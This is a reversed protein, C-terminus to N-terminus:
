AEMDDALKVPELYEIIGCVEGPLIVARQQISGFRIPDKSARAYPLRKLVQAWADAWRGSPEFIADLRPHHNAIAIEGAPGQDMYVKIGIAELAAEAQPAYIIRGLGEAARSRAVASILEGVSAHKTYGHHDEYTTPGALLHHLCLIEEADGADPLMARLELEKIWARAAALEPPRDNLAVWAPALLNAFQDCDRAGFAELDLATLLTEVAAEVEAWRAVLRGLYRRGIEVDFSAIAARRDEQMVRSQPLLELVTIRGVDQPLLGSVLISSFFFSSRVRYKQASGEITGRLIAGQGDSSSIRSLAVVKPVRSRVTSPEFEDFLVPLASNELAQRVGPEGTDGAVTLAWRDLIAQALGDLMSKGSESPGATWIHPRWRRAGCFPGGQVAGFYLTPGARDRFDWAEITELLARGDATTAPAGPAPLVRGLAYIKGDIECGAPRETGDVVLRDGLHLLLKGDALRWAGPGRITEFEDFHGCDAAADFLARTVNKHNFTGPIINNARDKRPFRDILWQGHKAFVHVIGTENHESLRLTVHKGAPTLYHYVNGVSGLVTVPSGDLRSQPAGGTPGDAGGREDTPAPSIPRERMVSSIPVVDDTDSAM